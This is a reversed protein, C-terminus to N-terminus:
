ICNFYLKRFKDGFYYIISNKTIWSNRENFFLIIKFVFMPKGGGTSDTGYGGLIVNPLSRNM